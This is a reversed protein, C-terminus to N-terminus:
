MKSKIKELMEADIKNEFYEVLEKDGLEQLGRYIMTLNDLQGNVGGNLLKRAYEVATHLVEKGGREIKAAMIVPNAIVPTFEAFGELLEQVTKDDLGERKIAAEINSFYTHTIVQSSSSSDYAGDLGLEQQLVKNSAKVVRKSRIANFLEQWVKRIQLQDIKVGIENEFYEIFEKYDLKKLGLYIM